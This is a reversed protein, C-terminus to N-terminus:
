NFNSCKFKTCLNEGKGFEGKQLISKMESKTRDNHIRVEFNLATFIKRLNQCDAQTGSREAWDTDDFSEHNFILAIGRKTHNMNYHYDIRQNLIENMKSAITSELSIPETTSVLNTPKNLSSFFLPLNLSLNM